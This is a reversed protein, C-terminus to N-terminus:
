LSKYQEILRSAHLRSTPTITCGLSQLYAIQKATAVTSVMAREAGQRQFHEQREAQVLAKEDPPMKEWNIVHEAYLVAEDDKLCCKLARLADKNKCTKNRIREDIVFGVKDLLRKPDHFARKKAWTHFLAAISPRAEISFGKLFPSGTSLEGNLVVSDLEEEKPIDFLIQNHVVERSESAEIKGEHDKQVKAEQRDMNGKDQCTELIIRSSLSEAQREAQVLAKEDPPMKEWKIVHEAYLVAEDDKL